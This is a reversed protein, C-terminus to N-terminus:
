FSLNTFKNYNKLKLYKSEVTYAVVKNNTENEIHYSILEASM